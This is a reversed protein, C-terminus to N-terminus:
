GLNFHTQDQDDKSKFRESVGAQCYWIKLKSKNSITIESKVKEEFENILKEGLEKESNFFVVHMFPSNEPIQKNIDNITSKLIENDFFKKLNNDTFKKEKDTRKDTTIFIKAFHTYKFEITVLYRSHEIDTEDKRCKKRVDSTKNVATPYDNKQIWEPDLVVFDISGSHKKNNKNNKNTSCSERTTYENMFTPFKYANFSYDECESTTKKTEVFDAFDIKTLENKQKKLEKRFVRDFENHLQKEELYVTPQTLFNNITKQIAKDVISNLIKARGIKNM